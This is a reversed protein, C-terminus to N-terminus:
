KKEEPYIAVKIFIAKGNHLDVVFGDGEETIAHVMGRDECIHALFDYLEGVMEKKTEIEKTM